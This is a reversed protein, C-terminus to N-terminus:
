LAGAERAEIATIAREGMATLAFPIPQDADFDSCAHQALTGSTLNLDETGRQVSPANKKTSEHSM